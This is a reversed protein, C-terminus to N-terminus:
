DNVVREMILAAAAELRSRADSMESACKERASQMLSESYAAAAAEAESLLRRMEVEENRRADNLQREGAQQEVQLVHRANAAAEECRQRALQEARTIDDIGSFGM